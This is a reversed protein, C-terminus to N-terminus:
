IERACLDRLHSADNNVALLQNIVTEERQFLRFEAMLAQISAQALLDAPKGKFPSVRHSCDNVVTVVMFYSKNILKFVGSERLSVAPREFRNSADDIGAFGRFGGQLAFNQLFDAIFDMGILLDAAEIDGRAAGRPANVQVTGRDGIVVADAPAVPPKSSSPSSTSNTSRDSSANASMTFALVM